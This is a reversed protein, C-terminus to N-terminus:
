APGACRYRKELFTGADNRNCHPFSAHQNARIVIASPPLLIGMPQANRRSVTRMVENTIAMEVIETRKSRHTSAEMKRQSKDSNLFPPIHCPDTDPSSSYVIM